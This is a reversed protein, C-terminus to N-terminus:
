AGEGNKIFKDNHKNKLYQIFLFALGSQFSAAQIKDIAVIYANL